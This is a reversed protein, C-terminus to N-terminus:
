RAKLLEKFLERFLQRREEESLFAGIEVERGSGKVTVYYPVPGNKEHLNAKAWYVNCTWECPPKNTQHRTLSIEEGSITLEELIEGDRYSRQLGWWLSGVALVMFPLLGWLVIAGILVLAPLALLFVALSIVIVFARKPLSRYPWAELTTANSTHTWEYPM